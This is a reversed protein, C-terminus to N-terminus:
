LAELRSGEHSTAHSVVKDLKLPQTAFNHHWFRMVIQALKNFKRITATIGFITEFRDM